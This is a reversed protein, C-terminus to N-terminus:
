GARRSKLKWVNKWGKDLLVSDSYCKPDNVIIAKRSRISEFTVKGPRVVLKNMWGGELEKEWIQVSDFSFYLRLADEIIGSIVNVGGLSARVKAAAYLGEDISTVIKVKPM